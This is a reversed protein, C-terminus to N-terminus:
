QSDANIATIANFYTRLIRDPHVCSYQVHSGIGPFFHTEIDMLQHVRLQTFGDPFAIQLKWVFALEIASLHGSAPIQRPLNRLDISWDALRLCVQHDHASFNM